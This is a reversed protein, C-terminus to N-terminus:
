PARNYNRDYERMFGLVEESTCGKDILQQRYSNRLDAALEKQKKNM